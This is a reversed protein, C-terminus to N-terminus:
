AEGGHVSVVHDAGVGGVHRIWDRAEAVSHPCFLLERLRLDGLRGGIQARAGGIIPGIVVSGTIALGIRVRARSSAGVITGHRVVVVVVAVRCIRFAEVAGEALACTRMECRTVAGSSGGRRPRGLLLSVLERRFEDSGSGGRRPSLQREV